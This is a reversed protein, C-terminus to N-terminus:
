ALLKRIQGLIEAENGGASRLKEDNKASPELVADVLDGVASRKKYVRVEDHQRPQDNSDLQWEPFYGLGAKKLEDAVERLVNSGLRSYGLAERLEGLRVIELNGGAVVAEVIQEMNSYKM